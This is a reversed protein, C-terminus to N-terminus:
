SLLVSNLVSKLRAYSQYKNFISFDVSRELIFDIRESMGYNEALNYEQDLLMLMIEFEQNNRQHLIMNLKDKLSLPLWLSMREEHDDYM